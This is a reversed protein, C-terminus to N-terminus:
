SEGNGYLILKIFHLYECRESNSSISTSIDNRNCAAVLATRVIMGGFTSESYKPIVVIREKNM